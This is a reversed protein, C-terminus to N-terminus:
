AGFGFPGASFKPSGLTQGASQQFSKLFPNMGITSGSFNGSSTSGALGALRGGLANNSQGIPQQVSAQGGVGLNLMQLWNNINFQEAQTRIDAATRAGIAQSAGSELMTGAGSKALQTNVDRLSQNVITDTVGPSIGAAAQGLFGQLQPAGNAGSNGTLLANIDNGANANMQRQFPDFAQAQGLQLQDLQIEEPTRQYQTQASQSSQQTTKEGKSM